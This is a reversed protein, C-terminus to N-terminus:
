RASERKKLTIVQVNAGDKLENQGSGVVQEGQALGGLVELQEGYERGVSIKRLRARGRSVVYVEPNLVSGTLAKRPIVLVDRNENGRIVVRVFMGARFPREADNDLHAEAEYTRDRGAKASLTAVSGQLVPSSRDRGFVEIPSGPAIGQVDKESLFFRVKLRSIDVVNAVKMGPQVMEGVDVLKRAVTGSVPSKIRTDEHRRRAEIWDSEADQRHLSIQELASVAIAGERFLSRYRRYDLEAKQYAARAKRLASGQLEDDVVFLMEEKRKPDGVDAFVKRVLGSTESYVEVDRFAEATGTVVLSDRVTARRVSEVTVPIDRNYSSVPTRRSATHQIWWFLVSLLVILLVIILDKKQKRYSSTIM